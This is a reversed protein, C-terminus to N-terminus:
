TGGAVRAELRLGSNAWADLQSQAWFYEYERVLALLTLITLACRM